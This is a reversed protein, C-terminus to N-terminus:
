HSPILPEGAAAADESLTFASRKSTDGPRSVAFYAGQGFCRRADRDQWFDCDRVNVIQVVSDERLFALANAKFSGCNTNIPLSRVSQVGLDWAIEANEEIQDPDTKM